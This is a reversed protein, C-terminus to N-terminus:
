KYYAIIGHKRVREEKAPLKMYDGYRIKLFTDYDQIAVYENGEFSIKSYVKFCEKPYVRWYDKLNFIMCAGVFETDIDVYKVYLKELRKHIFVSSVFIKIFCNICKILLNKPSNFILSWSNCKVNNLYIYKNINKIWSTREDINTPMNDIPFVDVFIGYKRQITEKYYFYTRSDYVKGLPVPHNNDTKLDVFPYEESHYENRFKNYNDRTMMIDIDDDWPIFGGHRVAGLLTGFALSYKINHDKCFLDIKDLITLQIKRLEEFNIPQQRNQEMDFEKM